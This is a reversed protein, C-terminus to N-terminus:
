RRSWRPALWWLPSSWRRAGKAILGAALMLVVAAALDCAILIRRRPWSDALAGAFPTLLLSPIFSALLVTGLALSSGTARGVLMMEAIFFAQDGLRSLTQGQWLLFLNRSARPGRATIRFSM